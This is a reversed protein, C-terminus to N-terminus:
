AGEGGPEDPTTEAAIEQSRDLHRHATEFAANWQKPTMTGGKRILDLAIRLAANTHNVATDDDAM